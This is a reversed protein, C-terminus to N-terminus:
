LQIIKKKLLLIYIVNILLKKEEINYYRELVGNHLKSFNKSILFSINIGKLREISWKFINEVESNVKEIIGEKGLDGNSM